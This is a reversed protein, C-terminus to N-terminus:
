RLAERECFAVPNGTWITKVARSCRKLLRDDSSIFSAGSQEAFAVHAADAIGFGVRVLEEARERTKVRDVPVSEGLANLLLQLEIREISEEIAEIERIHVPSVVLGYTGQRVRSFILNVAATELRIRLFSQDDFPRSIACVDLYILKKKGGRIDQQDSL